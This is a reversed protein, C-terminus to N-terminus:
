EHIRDQTYPIGFQSVILKSGRRSDHREAVYFCLFSLIFVINVFSPLLSFSFSLLHLSALSFAGLWIGTKEGAERWRRLKEREREREGMKQWNQRWEEERGNENKRCATSLCSLLYSPSPDKVAVGSEM